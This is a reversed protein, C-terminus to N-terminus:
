RFSSLTRVEEAVARLAEVAKQGKSQKSVWNTALDGLEALM